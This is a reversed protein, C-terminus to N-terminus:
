KKCDFAIIRNTIRAKMGVAADTIRPAAYTKFAQRLRQQLRNQLGHALAAHLFCECSVSAVPGCLPIEKDPAPEPLCALHYIEPQIRDVHRRRRRPASIGDRRRPRFIYRGDKLKSRL